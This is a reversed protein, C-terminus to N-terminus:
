LRYGLSIIKIVGQMSKISDIIGNFFKSANVYKKLDIGINRVDSSRMKNKFSFPSEGFISKKGEYDRILQSFSLAVNNLAGVIEGEKVLRQAEKLKNKSPEHQILDILSLEEFSRSFFRSTNEELFSTVLPRINDIQNKSPYIGIHKLNKRVNNIKDMGVEYGLDDIIQWYEMFNRRKRIMDAKKKIDTVDCKTELILQNFLEVSDHFLLISVYCFPEPRYSQEVALTYLHKVFILRKIITEEIKM